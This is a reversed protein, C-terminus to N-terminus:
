EIDPFNPSRNRLGRLWRHQRLLAFGYFTSKVDIPCASLYQQVFPSYCIADYAHSSLNYKQELFESCFDDKAQHCVTNLTTAIKLIAHEDRIISLLSTLGLIDKLSGFLLLTEISDLDTGLDSYNTQLSDRLYQPTKRYIKGYSEDLILERNKSVEKKIQTVLRKKNQTLDPIIKLWDVKQSLVEDLISKHYLVNTTIFHLILFNSKLAILVIEPDDQVEEEEEM